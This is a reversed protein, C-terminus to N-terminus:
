DAKEQVKGRKGGCRRQQEADFREWCREKTAFHACCSFRSISSCEKWDPKLKPNSCQYWWVPCVFNRMESKPPFPQGDLWDRYPMGGFTTEDYKGDAHGCVYGPNTQLVRFVGRRQPKVTPPDDYRIVRTAWGRGKCSICVVAWGDQEASGVHIGTGDCKECKADYTFVHKSM